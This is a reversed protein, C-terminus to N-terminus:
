GSDPRLNVEYNVYTFSATATLYEVGPQRADFDLGSLSYPFGSKFIFELNLRRQANLVQLILDSKMQEPDHVLNDDREKYEDFTNPYGQAYIWKQIELYNTMDEDVKFQIILDDFQIHDGTHPIATFPNPQHIYPLQIGPLYCASVYFNVNPMSRVWFRFNLQTLLDPTDPNTNLASLNFEGRLM